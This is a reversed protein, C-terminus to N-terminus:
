TSVALLHQLAARLRGAEVMGSMDWWTIMGAQPTGEPMAIFDDRTVIGTTTPQM